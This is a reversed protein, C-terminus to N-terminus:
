SVPNKILRINKLLAATNWSAIGLPISNSVEPRISLHHNDISFDIVVQDDVMAKIKEKSVEVTIHYWQDKTFSMWTTTENSSADRNDICSLGVLSGGWGGVILSCFEDNVPFTLGCFFDHGDIRKADLSLQYDTVPYIGTWTIGTCGEGRELLIEGKNVYVPGPSVFNSIKWGDLSVGDFISSPDTIREIEENVIDARKKPTTNCSFFCITILGGIIINKILYM